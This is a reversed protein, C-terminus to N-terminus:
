CFKVGHVCCISNEQLETIRLRWLWKREIGVWLHQKTIQSVPVNNGAFWLSCMLFTKSTCPPLIQCVLVFLLCLSRLARHQKFERHDWKGLQLHIMSSKLLEQEGKLVVSLLKFSKKPKLKKFWLWPPLVSIYELQFVGQSVSFWSLSLFSILSTICWFNYKNGFDPM